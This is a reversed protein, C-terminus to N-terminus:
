GRPHARGHELKLRPVSVHTYVETTTLSAHGLLEQIARLDAGHELLHTAYAHRFAHPSRPTAGAIRARREIARRVTSPDLRRGRRTLFLANTAARLVDGSRAVLEPRADSLYRTIAVHAPEGVPVLRVKAGKGLVRATRRDVDGLDLGVLESVRLGCGYLLELMAQDRVTLPDNDVPTGLLREVDHESPVDPLTKPRSPGPVGAAPDAEAEGVLVLSAHLGRVASLIRARSAPALGRRGLEAAFGRVDARSASRISAGRTEALWSAYGSLDAAYARLTESSAGGATLRALYRDISSNDPSSADRVPSM